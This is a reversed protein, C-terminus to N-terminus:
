NQSEVGCNPDSQYASIVVWDSQGKRGTVNDTVKFRYRHNYTAGISLTNVTTSYTETSTPIGNIMRVVEWDYRYDGTGGTVSATLTHQHGPMYCLDFSQPYNSTISAGLPKEAVNVRTLLYSFQGEYEIELLVVYNGPTSFTHEFSNVQNQSIGTFDNASIEYGSPYSLPVGVKWRYQYGAPHATFIVSNGEYIKENTYTISAQLNWLTGPTSSTFQKRIYGNEDRVRKLDGLDDYEYFTSKGKTNTEAIPRLGKGYLTHSFAASYPYYAINDINVTNDTAIHLSVDGSLDSEVVKELYVWNLSGSFPVNVAEDITGNSITITFNGDDASKVWCSFIYKGERKKLNESISTGGNLRYALGGNVGEISSGSVGFNRLTKKEFDSFRVEELTANSFAASVVNENYAYMVTGKEKNKNTYSLVRGKPSFIENTLLKEYHQDDFVFNSTGSVNNVSSQQLATSPAILGYTTKLNVNDNLKDHEYVNLTAGVISEAGNNNVTTFTEVPVGLINKERFNLLAKTQADVNSWEYPFSQDIIYDENYKINTTVLRGQSQVSKSTLLYHSQADYNYHTISEISQGGEYTRAISKTIRSGTNVKLHYLSYTVYSSYSDWKVAKVNHSPIDFNYENVVETKIEDSGSYDARRLLAGQVAPANVQPAFPYRFFGAAGSLDMCNTGSPRAFRTTTTETTEMGYEVPLAYEYISYGAGKTSVKVRSYAVSSGKFIEDNIDEETRVVLNKWAFDSTLNNVDYYTINNNFPSVHFNLFFAYEPRYLRNGSSNGNELQYDYEKYQDRSHGLGNFFELRKVRIGGGYFEMNALSDYFVNPEYHITTSGGAPKTVAKLSGWQLQVINPQGHKGAIEIVRGTYGPLPNYRLRNIGSLEPYLYLRPHKSQTEMTSYYGYIDKDNTNRDTLMATEAKLDVGYYSFHYPLERLETAQSISNLFIHSGNEPEENSKIFSYRFIYKNLPEDASIVKDYVTIWDLLMKKYEYNGTPIAYKSNAFEIRKNPTNIAELVRPLSHTTKLTYQGISDYTSNVYNYTYYNRQQEEMPWPIFDEGYWSQLLPPNSYEFSIQEGYASIIKSLYWTENFHVYGKFRYYEDKFLLPVPVEIHGWGKYASTPNEFYYRSGSEDVITFSVINKNEDRVYSVKFNNHGIFRIDGNNDFLFSAQIGPCSIHFIDPETDRLDGNGYTGLQSLYNYDDVEDSCTAYNTDASPDFNGIISYNGDYLWGARSDEADKPVMDDPLGRLTRRIEGGANLSWGVGLRGSPAEVPIGNGVYSISVLHSLRGDQATLLPINIVASGTFPDVDVFEQACILKSVLLLAVPLIRKM